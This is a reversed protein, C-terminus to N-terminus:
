RLNKIKIGYKNSIYDIFDQKVSPSNMNDILIDDYLSLGKEKHSYHAILWMDNSHQHNFFSITFNNMDTLFSYYAEANQFIEIPKNM